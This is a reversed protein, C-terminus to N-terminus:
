RGVKKKIKNSKPQKKKLETISKVPSKKSLVTKGDVSRSSSPSKDVDNQKRRLSKEAKSYEAMITELKRIRVSFQDKHYPRAIMDCFARNMRKSDLIFRAGFYVYKEYTVIGFRNRVDPAKKFFEKGLKDSLESIFLNNKAYVYAFTYAFSPSNSFVFVDYESISLSKRHERKTDSFKFVVDYTNTRETESPIILHFYIDDTRNGTKYISMKINNGKNRILGRYKIDLSEILQKRNPISSDGKGMPNDVYERINM